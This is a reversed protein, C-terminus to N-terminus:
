RRPYLATYKKPLWGINQHFIDGGDEPDFLIGLLLAAHICTAFLPGAKIITEKV